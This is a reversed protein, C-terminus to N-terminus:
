ATDQHSVVLRADTLQWAPDSADNSGELWPRSWVTAAVDHTKGSADRVTMLLHYKLGAVVQSSVDKLAVLKLEGEAVAGFGARKQGANLASVAYEAARMNAADDDSKTVGGPMVNQELVAMVSPAAVLLALLALARSAM